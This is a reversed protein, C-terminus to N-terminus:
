AGPRCCAHTVGGSQPRRGRVYAVFAQLMRFSVVQHGPQASLGRITPRAPTGDLGAVILSVSISTDGEGCDNVEWESVSESVRGLGALWRAFPMDRFGADLTSLPTRQVVAILTSEQAHAM